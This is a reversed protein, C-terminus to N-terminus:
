VSDGWVLFYEAGLNTDNPNETETIEGNRVICASGLGMYGFQELLNAAPYVGGMLPVADVLTSKTRADIVTMNWYEAVSNYRLLFSLTRNAGNIPITCNFSQNPETTLPIVYM